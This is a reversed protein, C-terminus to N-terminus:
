GSAVLLGTVVANDNLIGNAVPKVDLLYSVDKIMRGNFKALVTKQYNMNMRACRDM